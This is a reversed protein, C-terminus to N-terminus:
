SPYIPVQFVSVARTLDLSLNIQMVYMQALRYFVSLREFKEIGVCSEKINTKRFAHFSQVYNSIILYLASL